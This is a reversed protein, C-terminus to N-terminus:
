HGCAPGFVRKQEGWTLHTQFGVLNYLTGDANDRRLQVVAYNEKGTRPDRLGVPKLPGYRLTDVGRRAMVEVPMCGEFVGGDDFGHVEAEQATTLAQWFATYQEKDMPCNIYDPTGRDYRSAFYASSMDVSDFTVLPAAADYFHLGDAQGTLAAIQEALADSTLPGSAIVVEGAPIETM